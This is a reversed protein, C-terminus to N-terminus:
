HLISALLLDDGPHQPQPRFPQRESADGDTQVTLADQRLAPLAPYVRRDLADQRPIRGLPSCMDGSLPDLGHSDPTEAPNTAKITLPPACIACLM